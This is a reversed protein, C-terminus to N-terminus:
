PPDRGFKCLSQRFKLIQIKAMKKRAMDSFFNWVVDQRFTYLLNAGVFDHMSRPLTEVLTTYLITFNRIKSRQCYIKKGKRSTRSPLWHPVIFHAIDQFGRTPVTSRFPGFNPGWPYNTYMPYKIQSNFTSTWNPTVRHMESKKRGQVHIGSVTLRLAFRVLNPRQLLYTTYVPYNQSNLTWTWNPIMRHM